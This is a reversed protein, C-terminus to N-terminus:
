RFPYIRKQLKSVRANEKLFRSDDSITIIIWKKKNKCKLPFKDCMKCTKEPQQWYHELLALYWSVDRFDQLASIAL